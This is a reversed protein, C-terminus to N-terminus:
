QTLPEAIACSRVGRESIVLHDLVNIELLKGAKKLRQTVEIDEPSPTPNGSPHNHVLILAVGQAMLVRRFIINPSFTAYNAGGMAVMDVAIIKHEGDLTVVWVTEQDCRTLAKFYDGVDEPNKVLVGIM